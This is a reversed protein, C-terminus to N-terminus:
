LRTKRAIDYYEYEMHRATRTALAEDFLKSLVYLTMDIGASVGASTIVRGNDVWRVGRVVELTPELEQLREFATHYTTARLGKLLGAQALIWAGTCVSLVLEADAAQTKIWDLLILDYMATRVGRGGPVLLIDPKPASMTDYNPQVLLGNRARIPRSGHAVTYVEFLPTEPDDAARAAGFVEFPGAFDLVEVEDFIVIAAKRTM